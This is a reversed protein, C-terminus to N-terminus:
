LFRQNGELLPFHRRQERGKERMKGRTTEQAYRRRERSKEKNGLKRGGEERRGGERGGEKGRQGTSYTTGRQVQNLRYLLLSARVPESDLPARKGCTGLLVVM